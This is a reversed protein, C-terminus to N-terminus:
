SEDISPVASKAVRQDKLLQRKAAAEERDAKTLLNETVFKVHSNAAFVYGRFAKSLDTDNRVAGMLMLRDLRVPPKKFSARRKEAAAVAASLVASIAATAYVASGPSVRRPALEKRIKKDVRPAMKAMPHSKDPTKTAVEEVPAPADAAETSAM